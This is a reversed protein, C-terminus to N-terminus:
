GLFSICGLCGMFLLMLGSDLKFREQFALCSQADVIKKLGFFEAPRQVQEAPM